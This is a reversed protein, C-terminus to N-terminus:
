WALAPVLWRVLPRAPLPVRLLVAGAALDGILIKTWFREMQRHSEAELQLELLTRSPTRSRAPVPDKCVSPDPKGGGWCNGGKPSGRSVWQRHAEEIGEKDADPDGPRKWCRHFWKHFDRNNYGYWRDGKSLGHPDTFNTPNDAVYGYWNSGGEFGIPDESIFRGVQPDYWRARYYM